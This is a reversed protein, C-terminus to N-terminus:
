DLKCALHVPDRQGRGQVLRYFRLEYAGLRQGVSDRGAQRASDASLRGPSLFAAARQRCAHRHVEHLAFCDDSRDGMIM